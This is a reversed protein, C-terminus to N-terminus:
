THKSEGAIVNSNLNQNNESEMNVLENAFDHVKNAANTFASMENEAVVKLGAVMKASNTDNLAKITPSLQQSIEQDTTDIGGVLNAIAPLANLLDPLNKKKILNYELTSLKQYYRNITCRCMTQYLM